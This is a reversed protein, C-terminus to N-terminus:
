GQAPSGCDLAASRSGTRLSKPKIVQCHGESSLTAGLTSMGERGRGWRGQPASAGQQRSPEPRSWPGLVRVLGEQTEAEGSCPALRGVTHDKEAKESPLSLHSSLFFARQRSGPLGRPPCTQDGTLLLPTAGGKQPKGCTATGPQEPRGMLHRQPPAPQSPGPSRIGATYLCTVAWLQLAYRQSPPGLTLDVKLQSSEGSLDAKHSSLSLM